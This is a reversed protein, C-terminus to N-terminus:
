QDHQVVDIYTLANWFIKWTYDVMRASLPDSYLFHRGDSMVGKGNLSQWRLLAAQWVKQVPEFPHIPGAHKAM